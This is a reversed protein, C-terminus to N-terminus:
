IASLLVGAFAEGLFLFRFGKFLTPFFRGLACSSTGCPRGHAVCLTPRVATCPKQAHLMTMRPTACYHLGRDQKQQNKPAKNSKRDEKFSRGFNEKRDVDM